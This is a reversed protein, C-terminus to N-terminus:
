KLGGPFTRDIDIQRDDWRSIATGDRRFQEERTYGLQQIYIRKSTVRSVLHESDVDTQGIWVVKTLTTQRERHKAQELEYRLQRIRGYATGYASGALEKRAARLAVLNQEVTKISQDIEHLLEVADNLDKEITEVDRM